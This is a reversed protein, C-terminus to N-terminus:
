HQHAAGSKELDAKLIFSNEVVYHEGVTLGDLVESFSRDRHGINVARVEYDGNVLVFVTPSGDVSQLARNDIVLPRALQRTTIKGTVLMGPAWHKKRNDIAARALVFPAGNDNPILHKIVTNTALSDMTVALSQGVAIHAIQSPFVQFEAWLQDFNAITFLPQEETLEGSTAHRATVIGSLPATIPYHKLSENSEINVLVQGKKVTDGLDVNVEGITGPFRARIHSVKSSDASIKGYVTIQQHIVGAAAIATKIGADSAIASDIEVHKIEQHDHEDEHNHESSAVAPRSTLLFLTCCLVLSLTLGSRAHPNNM